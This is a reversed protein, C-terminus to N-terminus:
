HNLYLCVYDYTAVITQVERVQPILAQIQELSPRLPVKVVRNDQTRYRFSLHDYNSIFEVSENFAEMLDNRRLSQRVRDDWEIIEITSPDEVGAVVISIGNATAFDIVRHSLVSCQNIIIDIGVFHCVELMMTDEEENSLLLSCSNDCNEDKLESTFYLETDERDPFHRRRLSSILIQLDNPLQSYRCVYTQDCLILVRLM